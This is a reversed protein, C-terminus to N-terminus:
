GFTDDFFPSDVEYVTGDSKVVERGHTLIRMKKNTFVLVLTEDSAFRFPILKVKPADVRTVYELGARARVSGQPLVIFNLLKSAGAKYGSDDTRGELQPAIEGAVFANSLVRYGM